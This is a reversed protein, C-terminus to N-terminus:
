RPSQPPLEAILGVLKAPDVPKVLHRDFGAEEARRRDEERGYGTLAVLIPRNGAGATRIRRAVDYGNVGPLGIDVLAVDPGLSVAQAIGDQGDAAVYVVYGEQELACRLMERADDNDEIILVRRRELSGCKKPPSASAARAPSIAPLRVTFTSGRGLGASRAEVTGGHLEVLRRVLTLGIGLGGEERDLSRDGQVFLDFVRGILDSPIGVGSDEIELFAMNRDALARVIVTGGVPTYKLANGLLNAIVQALRTEDGAVWVSTTEVVVSHRDMRGAVRWATVLNATMEALDLPRLSLEIKGATVRGVDLLDDVLRTLQSVQRDIVARARTAMPDQAAAGDLV